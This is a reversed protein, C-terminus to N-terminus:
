HNVWEYLEFAEPPCSSCRACGASNVKHVRGKRILHDLMGRLAEADIQLAQSLDQLSSRSHHSLYHQLEKLIM